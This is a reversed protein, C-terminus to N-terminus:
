RGFRYGIGASGYIGLEIIHSSGSWSHEPYRVAGAALELWLSVGSSHTYELGGGGVAFPYTERPSEDGNSVYIGARALLYPGLPGDSAFWRMGLHGIATYAGYEMPVGGLGLDLSIRPTAQYAFRLSPLPVTADHNQIWLADPVTLGFLLSGVPRAPAAPGEGDASAVAPAALLVILAARLVVLAARLVVLATLALHKRPGPDLRRDRRRSSRFSSCLSAFSATQMSLDKQEVSFACSTGDAL